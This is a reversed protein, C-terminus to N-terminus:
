RGRTLASRILGEGQSGTEERATVKLIFAFVGFKCPANLTERANKAAALNHTDTRPRVEVCCCNHPRSPSGAATVATKVADPSGPSKQLRTLNKFIDSATFDQETDSHKFVDCLLTSM